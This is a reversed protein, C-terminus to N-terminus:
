ASPSERDSVPFLSCFTRLTPRGLFYGTPVRTAEPPFEPEVGPFPDAAAADDDDDDDDPVLSTLLFDESLVFSEGLFTGFIFFITCASLLFFFTLLRAMSSSSVDLFAM